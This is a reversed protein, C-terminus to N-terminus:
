KITSLLLAILGPIMSIKLILQSSRFWGPSIKSKISIIIFPLIMGVCVILTFLLGYYFSAFILSLSLLSLLTIVLCRTKKLGFVIPFTRLGVRLDGAIDEGDKLIERPLNLLFAFIVPFIIEKIKGSIALAGIPFTTSLLLSVVINGILPRPKLFPTYIFLLVSIGLSIYLLNLNLIIFIGNAIFFCIISYILAHKRTLRGSPILRNPQNIKDVAVDFYDNLLYGGIALLSISFGSLLSALNINGSSLYAGLLVAAWVILANALRV